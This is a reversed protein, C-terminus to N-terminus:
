RAAISRIATTVAETRNSVGLKRYLNSLHREVTKVSVHLRDAIQRNTCGTALLEVVEQERFTLRDGSPGSHASDLREQLESGWHSLGMARALEIAEDLLASARELDGRDHRHQLATALEARTAMAQPRAGVADVFALAGELLGIASDFEGHAAQLRGLYFDCPGLYFGVSYNAQLGSWEALADCLASIRPRDDVALALEAALALRTNVFVSRGPVIPVALGDRLCSRARDLDGTTLAALGIMLDDQAVIQRARPTTRALLAAREDRKVVVQETLEDLRDVRHQWWRLWIAQPTSGALARQSSGFRNYLEEAQLIAREAADFEGNLLLKRARIMAGLELQRPRREREAQAAREREIRDFEDFHGLITRVLLQTFVSEHIETLDGTRRAAALGQAALDVAQGLHGPVLANWCRARCALSLAV